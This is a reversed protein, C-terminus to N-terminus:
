SLWHSPSYVTVTGEHEVKLMLNFARSKFLFSLICMYTLNKIQLAYVSYEINNRLCQCM